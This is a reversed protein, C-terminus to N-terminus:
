SRGDSGHESSRQSLHQNTVVIIRINDETLEDWMGAFRHEVIANDFSGSLFDKLDKVNM